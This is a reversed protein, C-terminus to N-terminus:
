SGAPLGLCVCRPKGRTSVFAISKGSPSFAAADDLAEHHTLQRLTRSIVHLAFLEPNGTRESTFVVWQGDPSFTANYDLAPDDTLRETKENGEEFLFVDWNAPRLTTYVITECKPANAQADEAAHLLSTALCCLVLALSITKISSIM